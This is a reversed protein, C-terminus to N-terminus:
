RQLVEPGPCPDDDGPLSVRLAQAAVGSTSAGAGIVGGGAFSVNAWDNYGTLVSRTNSGNVDVSVTGTDISGDGDWDIRSTADEVLRWGNVYTGYGAITADSGGVVELGAAEDLRAEDLSALTFRSYDLLGGAGNFRLGVLQFTYNMVSLFNPKYNDTSNDGGHRLGLNHGLEHMFTGAQELRTGTGNTFAGLTVLFDAADISRSIGSSGSGQSGQYRVGFICYHYGPRRRASFHANQLANFETWVPDLLTDRPLEEDVQVHLAVGGVGDPNGLPARAFAAVVDSIAGDDPRQGQMFDVEVFVDRHRPSAGAAAYDVFDHGNVEWGDSLRDGDTDASRPDTGIALEQVDPLGDGDTDTSAGAYLGIARGTFREGARAQQFVTRGLYSPHTVRVEVAETADTIALGTAGLTFSGHVGPMTPTTVSTAGCTPCPQVTVTAGDLPRGTAADFVLPPTPVPLVLSDDVALLTFYARQAAQATSATAALLLLATVRRLNM